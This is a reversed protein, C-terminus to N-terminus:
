RRARRLAREIEEDTYGQERAKERLTAENGDGLYREFYGTLNSVRDSVNGDGASGQGARRQESVDELQLYNTIEDRREASIVDPHMISLYMTTFYVAKVSEVAVRKASSVLLILYVAVIFPLYAFPVGGLTVSALSGGLLWALGAGLLVLVFVIPALISGFLQGALDIGFVGTLAGPVNNKLAKLKDALGSFGPDDVVIAPVAYNEFLDWVEELGEILLNLLFAGLGSDNDKAGSLLRTVLVDALALLVLSDRVHSIGDKSKAYTADNGAIVTKTAHSLVSKQFATYYYKYLPVLTVSTVTLVGGILYMDMYIMLLVGVLLATYHFFEYVGLRAVPRFLDADEGFLTFTNKVLNGTDRAQDKGRQLWSMATKCGREKLFDDTVAVIGQVTVHTKYSEYRM